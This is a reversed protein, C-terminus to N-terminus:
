NLNTLHSRLKALVKKGIVPDNKDPCHFAGKEFVYDINTFKHKPKVGVQMWPDHEGSVVVTPITLQALMEAVNWPKNQLIEPERSFTAICDAIHEERTYNFPKGTFFTGTQTCQQYKWVYWNYRGTKAREESMTGPIRGDVWAHAADPLAKNLEIIFADTALSSIKNISPKLAQFSGRQSLGAVTAMLLERKKWTEDYPQKPTLNIFHKALKNSFEEGLNKRAQIAYEPTEFSFDIPGSSALVVDVSKPYTHAFDVVLGAGYSYGAAIWKGTYQKKLSQILRYSDSVAHEVRVYEPVTQEGKTISQGYGRHEAMIFIMDQPAGYAKYLKTLRQKTIDNENGIVYFVNADDKVGQPKLIFWQQKFQEANVNSPDALQSFWHETVTFTSSQAYCLGSFLTFSIVKLLKFFSYM